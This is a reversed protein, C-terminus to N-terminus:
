SSAKVKFHVFYLREEGSGEKISPVQGLAAVSSGERPQELAAEASAQDRFRVVIM